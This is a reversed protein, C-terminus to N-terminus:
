KDTPKDDKWQGKYRVASDMDYLIGFGNRRDNKWEGEYRDGNPWYYTGQGERVGNVYNGVYKEGDVWEFTGEGHRLNNKWNGRYISGTTWIGVGGGNAKGNEVEGLYHIKHGRQSNFTIVQIKSVKQLEKEKKALKAVLEEKESSMHTGMEKLHTSLSDVTAELEAITERQKSLLFDRPDAKTENSSQQMELMNEVHEIRAQVRAELAHDVTALVNRYSELAKEYDGELILTEDARNLHDLRQLSAELRATEEKQAKIREAVTKNQGLAWIFMGFMVLAILSLIIFWGAFKKNQWLNQSPQKQQSM